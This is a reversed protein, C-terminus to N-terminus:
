TRSTGDRPAHGGAPPVDVRCAVLLLGLADRLTAARYAGRTAHDITFVGHRDRAITIKANGAVLLELGDLIAAAAEGHMFASRDFRFSGDDRWTCSGGAGRGCHPGFHSARLECVFARDADDLVPSRDSCMTLDM